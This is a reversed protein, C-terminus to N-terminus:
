KPNTRAADIYLARRVPTQSLANLLHVHILWLDTADGADECVNM